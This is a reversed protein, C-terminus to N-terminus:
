GALLLINEDIVRGFDGWDLEARNEPYCEIQEAAQANEVLGLARSASVIRHAAVQITHGDQQAVADTIRTIDEQLQERYLAMIQATKDDGLRAQIAEFTNDASTAATKALGLNQLSALLEEPTYPKALCLNAGLGLLKERQQQDFHASTMIIALDETTYQQRLRQLLTTGDMNPMRVDSIVADFHQKQILALAQEGDDVQSVTHGASSLLESAVMRNSAVDDVILVTLATTAIDDVAGTLDASADTQHDSVEPLRMGLTFSAWTGQGPTSDLSFHGGAAKIMEFCIPLGLGSSSNQSYLSEVGVNFQAKVQALQQTSIGRGSDEVSVQLENGATLWKASVSIDGADTYKVANSILNILMRRIVIPQGILRAPLHNTHLHIKLNKEEARSRLLQIMTELLRQPDFEVVKDAAQAHKLQTRDLLNDVLAYMSEAAYHTTNWYDYQKTSLETRGLLTTAGLMAHLPTRIEHSLTSIFKEQLEMRLEATDRAMQAQKRALQSNKLAIGLALSLLVMELAAALIGYTPALGQLDIIRLADLIFLVHSIILVTWAPLFVWAPKYGSVAIIFSLLPILLICTMYIFPYIRASMAPSDPYFITALLVLFMLVIALWNLHVFANALIFLRKKAPNDHLQQLGPQMFRLTFLIFFIMTANGTVRLAHRASEFLSSLLEPNFHLLTTGVLHALAYAIYILYMSNRLSLYLLFNYLILGIIIGMGLLALTTKLNSQWAMEADPILNIRIGDFIPTRGRQLFGCNTNRPLTVPIYYATALNPSELGLAPRPTFQLAQGECHLYFDLADYLPHDSRIGWRATATRNILPIYFWYQQGAAILEDSQYDPQSMREVVKSPSLRNDPDNLLLTEKSLDVSNNQLFDDTIELAAVPTLAICLVIFLLSRVFGLGGPKNTQM